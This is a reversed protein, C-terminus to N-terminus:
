TTFAWMVVGGVLLAGIVKIWFHTAMATQFPSARDNGYKARAGLAAGRGAANRARQEAARLAEYQSSPRPEEDSM